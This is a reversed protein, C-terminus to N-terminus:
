FKENLLLCNIKFVRNNQLKKENSEFELHM